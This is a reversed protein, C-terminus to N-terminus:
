FYSNNLLQNALGGAGIRFLKPCLWDKGLVKETLDMYLIAEEPKRIGGAAKLGVKRGTLNFYDKVSEAMHYFAEPTAGVSVKGTSTKIMDAGAEMAVFAARRISSPEVLVGTELIVKIFAKTVKKIEAIENAVYAYDGDMFRGEPIVIDLEEAGEKVCSCAEQLKISTFTQSSPFGGSVAAIRISNCKLYKKVEPLLLPYVCIGAPSPFSPFNQELSNIKEVWKRISSPSDWPELSTLDLFSFCKQMLKATVVLKNQLENVISKADKNEKEFYITKM